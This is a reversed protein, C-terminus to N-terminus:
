ELPRREKHYSLLSWANNSEISDLEEKMAKIWNPNKLAESVNVPESEALFALHVLEGDETVENDLTIECEQLRTPMNRQRQPRGTETQAPAEVENTSDECMIRVADNKENSGWNWEKVEDIIVDMSIIVQKNVPDLLKYGGTSHYGVLILQESKDDLKKRLQDPIHRYTISGFVRLHNVNPKNGSWCEEPTINNLKKTPCRNMIYTATSVAEGWLEKPLHKSKLMSRVMNMITRNKREATGNQQPTYPPVVDHMIGEQTCFADFESSVYEGGGDTRLTKIKYGSQKEVLSKFKRFIEFVESKRKMLYTWLKRSFDDIFTVFYKNGGTSEVQIPGCVDSYVVELISKTKSGANKSFSSRHQKSQVCEECM